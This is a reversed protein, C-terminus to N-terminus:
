AAALAQRVMELLASDDFPKSLIATAGAAWAQADLAGDRRGGIVIIPLTLGRGRLLRLLELGGTGPMHLDLLLCAMDAPEAQLFADASPYDRTAIGSSDLLLRLSDRVADDDDVICVSRADSV